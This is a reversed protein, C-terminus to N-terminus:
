VLRPVAQRMNTERGGTKEVWQQSPWWSFHVLIYLQHHGEGRQSLSFKSKSWCEPGLRRAGADGQVRVSGLGKRQQIEEPSLCPSKLVKKGKCM